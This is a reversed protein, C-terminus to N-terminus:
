ATAGPRPPGTVVRVHAPAGIAALVVTAIWDVAGVHRAELLLAGAGLCAGAAALLGMAAAEGLRRRLAVVLAAMAAGAALLAAGAATHM